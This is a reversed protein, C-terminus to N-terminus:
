DGDGLRVEPQDIGPFGLAWNDKVDSGHAAPPHHDRQDAYRKGGQNRQHAGHQGGDAYTGCGDGDIALRRRFRNSIIV